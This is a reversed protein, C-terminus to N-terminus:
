CVTKKFIYHTKIQIKINNTNIIEQISLIQKAFM